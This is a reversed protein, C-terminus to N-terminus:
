MSAARDLGVLVVKLYGAGQLLNMVAMVDGYAVSKDARLFVPQM